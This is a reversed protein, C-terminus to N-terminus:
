IFNDEAASDRPRGKRPRDEHTGTENYRLVNLTKANIRVSQGENRLIIIAVGKEKILEKTRAM